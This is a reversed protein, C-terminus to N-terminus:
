KAANILTPYEGEVFLWTSTSFNEKTFDAFQNSGKAKAETVPSDWYYYSPFIDGIWSHDMISRKAGSVIDKVYISTQLCLEYNKFIEGGGRVASPTEYYKKGQGFTCASFMHVAYAKLDDITFYYAVGALVSDTTEGVLHNYSACDKMYNKTVRCAIGGVHDGLITSKSYCETIYGTTIGVVGGVNTARIQEAINGSTTLISTNVYGAVGGVYLGKVKIESIISGKNLSHEVKSNSQGVIGGVYGEASSSIEIEGSNETDAITGGNNNLAAVGGIYYFKPAISISINVSSTTNQITGSNQAVVGGLYVDNQEMTSAISGSVTCNIIKGENIAAIGGALKANANEFVVEVALNQIVANKGLTAFLGAYGDASLRDSSNITITIKHKPTGDINLEGVLTGNFDIPTYQDDATIEFSSTVTYKDSSGAIAKLQEATEISGQVKALDLNSAVYKADFNISPMQNQGVNLIWINEFDWFYETTGNIFSYYTQSDNQLEEVTKNFVGFDSAKPDTPDTMNSIARSIGSTDSNYYNGYIKNKDNQANTNIGIIAGKNSSATDFPMVSYTDKLASVYTSSGVSASELVGVVGGVYSTQSASQLKANSNIQGAFCNEITAGASVGVLGGVAYNASATVSASSLTISARLSSATKVTGALGGAVSNNGTATLTSTTAQVKYISGTSLGVVSGVVGNDKGNQITSNTVTVNEIYGENLGAVVGVNDYQGNITCVDFSGGYIKGNTAIKTFLGANEFSNTITMGSITCGNMDFEGSFGADVGTNADVASLPTWESGALSIDGTLKYYANSPLADDSTAGILKLTEADKIFYPATASGSGVTVQVRIPTFGKSNSNVTIYTQGGGIALFTFDDIGKQIVGGTTEIETTITTGNKLHETEIDLSIPDGVNVEFVTQTVKIVEDYTMFRFVTFGISLSVICIIVFILFRKM